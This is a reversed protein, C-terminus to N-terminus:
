CLGQFDSNKLPCSDELGQRGPDINIYWLTHQKKQIDQTPKAEVTQVELDNLTSIHTM